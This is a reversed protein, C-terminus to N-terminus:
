GRRSATQHQTTVTMAETDLARVSLPLALARSLTLTRPEGPRLDIFNDDWDLRVGADLWVGKTPRDASLRVSTASLQEARLGTDGFRHYKYPEPFDSSRSVVAGGVTLAAYYVLPGAGSVAEPTWDPLPTVRGPLVRLERQDEAVLRGDLTYAWLRLGASLPAPGASCLWVAAGTERRELGVTLPAMERKITHYAPKAIGQADIIATM